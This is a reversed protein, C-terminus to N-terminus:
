KFIFKGTLDNFKFSHNAAKGGIYFMPHIAPVLLSLNGMDTSGSPSLVKEEDKEFEIGIHKANDEYCQALTQNTIM